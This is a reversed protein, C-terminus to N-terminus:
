KGIPVVSLIADGLSSTLSYPEDWSWMNRMLDVTMLGGLSLVLACLSLSIVNGMTYPAERSSIAGVPATALGPGAALGAGLPDAAADAAEVGGLDEFMGGGLGADDGLMDSGFSSESDLAIVQSGSDADDADAEAMPTLLFDDDSGAESPEDLPALSEEEDPTEVIKEKPTRLKLPEELSLGSDSPSALSIGSDASGLTIDSGGLVLEDDDLDEVALAIGSDGTKSGRSASSSGGQPDALVLEDIALDDSLSIDRKGAGPLLDKSIRMQTDAETSVDLQDDIVLRLNSGSDSANGGPGAMALDSGGSLLGSGGPLNKAGDDEAVICIDSEEPSQAGPKGIITSSAGPSQGLELDSLLVVDDTDGDDEIAPLPPTAPKPSMLEIEPLSLDFDSEDDLSVDQEADRLRLIDQEKFKWTAGDRYGSIERQERRRTLEDVSVGLLRAAEELSILKMAM